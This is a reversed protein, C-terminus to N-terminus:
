LTDWLVHIIGNLIIKWIYGLVIGGILNPVFFITRFITSGKIGRTLVLAFAFAILNILLVSVITYGTTFKFSEFFSQDKFAEIYNDFGVFTQFRLTKFKFFSLKMGWLFPYIFGICFAAFTPLLFLWAFKRMAKRQISNVASSNVNKKKKNKGM